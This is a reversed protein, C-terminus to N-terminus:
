VQEAPDNDGIPKTFPAIPKTYSAINQKETQLKTIYNQVIERMLDDAMTMIATLTQNVNLIPAVRVITGLIAAEELEEPLPVVEDRDYLDEPVRYYECYGTMDAPFYRLVLSPDSNTVSDVEIGWVNYVPQYYQANRWTNDSSGVEFFERVDTKRAEYKSGSATELVVKISKIYGRPLATEGGTLGIRSVYVWDKFPLSSAMLHKITRNAMRVVLDYDVNISDDLQPRLRMVVEDYLRGMTLRDYLRM